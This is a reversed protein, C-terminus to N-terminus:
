FDKSCDVRTEPDCRSGCQKCATQAMAFEVGKNEPAFMELVEMDIM